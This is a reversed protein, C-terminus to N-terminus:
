STLPKGEIGRYHLAKNLNSGLIVQQQFSSVTKHYRSAIAKGDPRQVWTMILYHGRVFSTGLAAGKGIKKTVGTGALPQLYAERGAGAKDAARAASETKLNLVGVTGILKGDARAFTARLAQVCGGKTLARELTGGSVIKTCSRDHKWATRVYKLGKDTFSGNGFAEKLTLPNPDTARSKLKANLRPPPLRTPTSRPTPTPTAAAQPKDASDDGTLMSSAAFGVGVLLAAAVVGGGIMLPLNRRRGRSPEGGPPPGFAGQDFRDPPGFREPPPGFHPGPAGGYRVEPNGPAGHPPYAETPPRDFGGGAGFADEGYEPRDTAGGDLPDFSEGPRAAFAGPPPAFPSGDSTPPESPHGGSRDHDGPYGM